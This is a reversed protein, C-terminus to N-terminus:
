VGFIVNYRFTAHMCLSATTKGREKRAKLQATTLMRIVM